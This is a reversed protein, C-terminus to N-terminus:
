RKKKTKKKAATITTFKKNINQIESRHCYDVTNWHASAHTHPTPPNHTREHTRAHTLARTRTHKHTHTRAFIHTRAHTHARAHKRAHTHTHTHTRAHAHTHTKGVSESFQLGLSFETSEEQVWAFTYLGMMPCANRWRCLIDTMAEEELWMGNWELAAYTLLTGEGELHHGAPNRHCISCVCAYVQLCLVATSAKTVPVFQNLVRMQRGRKSLACRTICTCSSKKTSLDHEM